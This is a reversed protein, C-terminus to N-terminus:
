QEQDSPLPAKLAESELSTLELVGLGVIITQTQQFVDDVWFMLRWTGDSPFVISYETVSWGDVESTGTQEPFFTQRPEGESERGNIGIEGRFRCTFRYVRESVMVSSEGPQIHLVETFGLQPIPRDTILRALSRKQPPAGQVDFRWERGGFVTEQLRCLSQEGPLGGFATV